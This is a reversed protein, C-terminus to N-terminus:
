AARQSPTTIKRFYGSMENLRFVLAILSLPTTRRFARNISVVAGAAETSSHGCGIRELPSSRIGLERGTGALPSYANRAIPNALAEPAGAPCLVETAM